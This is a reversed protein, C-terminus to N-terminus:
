NLNKEILLTGRNRTSQKVKAKNGRTRDTKVADALQMGPFDDVAM